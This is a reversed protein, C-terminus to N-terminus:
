RVDVSGFFAMTAVVAAPNITDLDPLVGGGVPKGPRMVFAEHEHIRVDPHAILTVNGLCAVIEIMLMENKRPGPPVRDRIDLELHGCFVYARVLVLKDSTERIKASRFATLIRQTRENGGSPYARVALFALVAGAMLFGGGPAFPRAAAPILHHVLAFGVAASIILGVAVTRRPGPGRLWLLIAAGAALPLAPWWRVAGRVVVPLLGASRLTLWAGALLCAAAAIGKALRM